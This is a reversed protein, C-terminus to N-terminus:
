ARQAARPAPNFIMWALCIAGLVLRVTMSIVLAIAAGDLGYRPVLYWNAIASAAVTVAMFVAQIKFARAATLGMGTGLSMYWLMGALMLWLFANWHTSYEYTYIITLIQKGFLISGGLMVAGIVVSLGVIRLLLLGFDRRRGDAFLRALRSVSPQTLATTLVQGILLLQAMAAFIGLAHNGLDKAVYFRPINLNLSNLLLVIGLPVSVWLLNLLRRQRARDEPTKVGYGVRVLGSITTVNGHVPHESLIKRCNPFDYFLVVILSGLASGGVAVAVNKTLVYCGTLLVISAIGKVAMSIGIRDMRERQQLLGYVVDSFSDFAFSLGALFIVFAVEVTHKGFLALGAVITIALTSLALRTRFYEDYGFEGKVDTVLVNRLNLQSFMFVPMAVAIGLAYEGVVSPTGLKALAISMGWNTACYILTGITNWLANQRVSLPPLGRPKNPTSAIPKAEVDVGHNNDKASIM